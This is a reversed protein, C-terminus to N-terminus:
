RQLICSYGKMMTLLLWSKPSSEKCTITPNGQVPKAVLDILDVNGRLMSEKMGQLLSFKHIEKDLIIWDDGIKSAQSFHAPPFDQLCFNMFVFLM